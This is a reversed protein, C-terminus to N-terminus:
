ERVPTGSNKRNNEEEIEDAIEKRTKIIPKLEYKALFDTFATDFQSTDFSTECYSHMARIFDRYFAKKDRVPDNLLTHAAIGLPKFYCMYISHAETWKKHYIKSIVYEVDIFTIAAYGYIIELAAIYNERRSMFVRSSGDENTLKLPNAQEILSKMFKLDNKRM